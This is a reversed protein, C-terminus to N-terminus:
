RRLNENSDTDLSSSFPISSKSSFQNERKILSNRSAMKLENLDIKSKCKDSSGTVSGMSGIDDSCTDTKFTPELSTSSIPEAEVEEILALQSSKSNRNQNIFISPNEICFLLIDNQYHVDNCISIFSSLPIPFHYVM